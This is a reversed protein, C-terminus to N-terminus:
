KVLPRSGLVAAGVRVHTAGVAIAHELDGSMGASLLNAAPFQQVFDDRVRALLEFAREPPEGLPAVAMLGCLTLEEYTSVITALKALNDPQAGSRRSDSHPAPELDVQLFIPLPKGRGAAGRALPELLADRDVSHVFDAYRAIAGVKNRQLGGVFHWQLPLGGCEAVKAKAEQHRNEGVDRVGLYSLIQLDSIPFNKTVVVLTVDKPDRGAVHCARAIREQVATLSNHIERTRMLQHIQTM